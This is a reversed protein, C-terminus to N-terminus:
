LAASPRSPSVHPFDMAEYRIRADALAGALLQTNEAASTGTEAFTIYNIDVAAQSSDLVLSFYVSISKSKFEMDLSVTPAAGWDIEVEASAGFNLTGPMFHLEAAANVLSELHFLKELRIYTVFEVVDILRLESAVDRLAEALIRERAHVIGQPDRKM